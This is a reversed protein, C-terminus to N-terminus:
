PKVPTVKLRFVLATPFRWTGEHTFLVTYSGEEHVSDVPEYHHPTPSDKLYVEVAYRKM